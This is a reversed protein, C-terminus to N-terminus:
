FGGYVDMFCCVNWEPDWMTPYGGTIFFLPSRLDWHPNERSIVPPNERRIEGRLFGGHSIM